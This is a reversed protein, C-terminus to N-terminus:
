TKDSPEFRPDQRLRVGLKNPTTKLYREIVNRLSLLTAQIYNDGVKNRAQACFLRLFKDIEDVTMNAIGNAGRKSWETFVLCLLSANLLLQQFLFPNKCHNIIVLRYSCFCGM